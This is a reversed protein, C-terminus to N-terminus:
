AVDLDLGADRLKHLEGKGLIQIKDQVDADIWPRVVKWMMSFFGPANIVFIRYTTEPYCASSFKFARAIFTRNEKRFHGMTLGKLDVVTTHYFADSALRGVLKLKRQRIAEMRHAYCALVEDHTLKAVLEFKISGICDLVAVRGTKEDGLERSPWAEDFTAMHPPPPPPQSAMRDINVEVLLALAEEFHKAVNASWRRLFEDATVVKGRDRAMNHAAASISARSMRASGSKLVALQVDTPCHGRCFAWVMDVPVDRGFRDRLGEAVQREMDDRPFPAKSQGAVALSTRSELARAGGPKGTPV